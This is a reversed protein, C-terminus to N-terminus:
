LAGSPHSTGGEEPPTASVEASRNYKGDKVPPRFALRIGNDPKMPIGSNKLAQLHSTDFGYTGARFFPGDLM